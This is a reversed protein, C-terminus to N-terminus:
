KTEIGGICPSVVYVVDAFAVHSYYLTSLVLPRSLVFVLVKAFFYAGLIIYAEEKWKTQDIDPTSIRLADLQEGLQQESIANDNTRGKKAEKMRKAEAKIRKLEEETPLNAFDQACLDFFSKHTEKAM